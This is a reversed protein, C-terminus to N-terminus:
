EEVSKQALRRVRRNYATRDSNYLLAAEPNAPSACNPDTLLSQISTLLTCINHIPSWADQIIDLCLTGDSYVNPHFMESVFRVRPPKDPYREGFQFKLSFVGGEWPSDNPGFVSATWIYLNDEPPNQKISRLDSALRLMAAM